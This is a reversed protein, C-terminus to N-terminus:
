FFDNEHFECGGAGQPEQTVAIKIKLEPEM